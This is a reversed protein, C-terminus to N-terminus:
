GGGAPAGLPLTFCFARAIQSFVWDHTTAGWREVFGRKIPHEAKAPIRNGRQPIRLLAGPLTM